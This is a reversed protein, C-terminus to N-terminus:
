FVGTKHMVKPVTGRLVVALIAKRIEPNKQVKKPLKIKLEKALAFLEAKTHLKLFVEDIVFHKKLDVKVAAAVDKLDQGYMGNIWLKSFEDIAEVIKKQPLKLITELSVSASYQRAKIGLEKLLELCSSGGAADILAFLVVAERNFTGPKLLEKSQRKFFGTKYEAVRQKLKSEMKAVAEKGAKVTKKRRALPNTCVIEQVILGQFREVFCVAFVNPEKFLRKKLIEWHDGDWNNVSESRQLKNRAEQSIVTVGKAQLEKTEAAVWEKTKKNFCAAKLCISKIEAGGEFLMAQEGGNFNCGTCGTDGLGNGNPGKKKPFMANSLQPKGRRMQDLTDSVTLEGKAISRVLQERDKKETVRTLALAHGLRFHKDKMAERTKDDLQLLQLRKEVYQVPKSLKKALYTINKNNKKLYNYFGEAEEILNLNKRQLNSILRAEDIEGKEGHNMSYPVEKMGLMKAVKLRRGGDILEKEPTLLLPQLIGVEQISRTLEGLDFDTRPNDTVIIDEVKIIMRQM